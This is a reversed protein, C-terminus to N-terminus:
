EAMDFFGGQRAPSWRIARLDALDGPHDMGSNEEIHFAFSGTNKNEASTLM